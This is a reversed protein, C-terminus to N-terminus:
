LPFPNKVKVAQFSNAQIEQNPFMILSGLNAKLSDM